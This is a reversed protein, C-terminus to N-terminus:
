WDKEVQVRAARGKEKKLKDLTKKENNKLAELMRDAAEKSMKKNQSQQQQQKQQEQQPKDKKKQDKNQQNKQQQQQKLKSLAYALNYRTDDDKSNLRLAQKYANISEQYKKDEFLSNGLNHFVKAKDTEQITTQSLKQYASTAENFKNQKYLANGLNFNSKVSASDHSIAKRYDIEADKYKGAQYNYNGKRLFKAVQQAEAQFACGILTVVIGAIISRKMPNTTNKTQINQIARGM